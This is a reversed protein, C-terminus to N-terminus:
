TVPSTSLSPSASAKRWRPSMAYGAFSSEFHFVCYQFREGPIEQPACGAARILTFARPLFVALSRADLVRSRDHGAGAVPFDGAVMIMVVLFVDRQHRLHTELLEAERDGPGANNRVAVAGLVRLADGVVMVDDVFAPLVANLRDDGQIMEIQRQSKLLLVAAPAVAAADVGEHAEAADTEPLVAGLDFVEQGDVFLVHHDQEVHAAVAALLRLVLGVVM